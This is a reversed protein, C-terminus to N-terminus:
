AMSSIKRGLLLSLVARSSGIYRLFSQLPLVAQLVYFNTRPQAISVALCTRVRGSSRLILRRARISVLGGLALRHERRRQYLSSPVRHLVTGAMAPAAPIKM